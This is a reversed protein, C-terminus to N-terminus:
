CFEFLDGYDSNDEVSDMSSVTATGKIYKKTDEVILSLNEDSLAKIPGLYNCTKDGWITENFEFQSGKEVSASWVVSHKTQEQTFSINGDAIYRLVQLVAACALALAGRPGHLEKELTPVKTRGQIFNFHAAFTQLVLASRWMGTWDRSKDGRNQVFFFRNKKIMDTAFATRVAPDLFDPDEAFFATIAVIAASAFGARWNNLNQKAMHFVAGNSTVTHEIKEEYIVNWIEQLISVFKNTNIAWPNDYGAFFHALASIFLRRWINDTTAGEPLDENIYKNNVGSGSRQSTGSKKTRKSPNATEQDEAPEDEQKMKHKSCPAKGSHNKKRATSALQSPPPKQEDLESSSVVEAVGMSAMKRIVANHPGDSLLGREPPEAEDTGDVYDEIDASITSPAPTSTRTSVADANYCM